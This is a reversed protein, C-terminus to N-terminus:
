KEEKYGSSESECRNTISECGSSDAERVVRLWTDIENTPTLTCAISAGEECRTKIDAISESDSVVASRLEGGIGSM